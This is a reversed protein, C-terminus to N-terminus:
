DNDVFVINSQKIVAPTKIGKEKIDMRGSARYWRFNPHHEGSGKAPIYWTRGKTNNVKVEKIDTNGSALFFRSDRDRTETRGLLAQVEVSVYNFTGNCHVVIKAIVSDAGDSYHPNRVSPTCSAWRTTGPDEVSAETPGFTSEATLTDQSGSALFLDIFAQDMSSLDTSVTSVGGATYNIELTPWKSPDNASASSYFALASESRENVQGVLLGYNPEGFEIWDQTVESVNWSKWGSTSGNM